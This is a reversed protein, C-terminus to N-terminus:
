SGLGILGTWYCDLGIWGADLLVCSWGVLGGVILRLGVVEDVM